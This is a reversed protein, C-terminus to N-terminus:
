SEGGSDGGSEAPAEGSAGADGEAGEGEAGEGEAAGEEATQVRPPQGAAVISEPDVETIVNPPLASAASIALSDAPCASVGHTLM